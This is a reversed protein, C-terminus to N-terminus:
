RWDADYGLQTFTPNTTDMTADIKAEALIIGNEVDVSKLGVSGGAVEPISVNL